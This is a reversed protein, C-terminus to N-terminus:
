RSAGQAYSLKFLWDLWLSRAGVTGDASAVLGLFADSAV